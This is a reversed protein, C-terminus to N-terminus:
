LSENKDKSLPESYILRLKLLEDLSLKLCFYFSNRVSIPSIKNEFRLTFLHYFDQM